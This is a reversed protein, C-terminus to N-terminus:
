GATGDLHEPSVAGVTPIGLDDYSWSSPPRSLRPTLRTPRSRNAYGAPLATSVETTVSPHSRPRADAALHLYVTRGLPDYTNM